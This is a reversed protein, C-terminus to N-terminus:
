EKEYVVLDPRKYMTGSKQDLKSGLYGQAVLSMLTEKVSSKAAGWGKAELKDCVNGLSRWAEFFEEKGLSLIKGPLDKTDFKVSEEVDKIKVKTTTQTLAAQGSPPNSGGARVAPGAIKVLAKELESYGELKREYGAKMAESDVKSDALQKNLGEVQEAWKAIEKKFSEKQSDIRKELGELHKLAEEKNTILGAGGGM